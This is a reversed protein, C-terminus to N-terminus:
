VSVDPLGSVAPKIPRPERTPKRTNQRKPKPTVGQNYGEKRNGRRLKNETKRIKQKLRNDRREKAAQRRRESEKAMKGKDALADMRRIEVMLGKDENDYIDKSTNARSNDTLRRTSDNSMSIAPLRRPKIMESETLTEVIFRVGGSRESIIGVRQLEQLIEPSPRTEIRNIIELSNSVVGIKNKRIGGCCNLKAFSAGM